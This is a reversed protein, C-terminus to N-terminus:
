KALRARWIIPTADYVGRGMITSGDDSIYPDHLAMGAPLAIIGRTNLEQLMSRMGGAADWYFAQIDAPAPPASTATQRNVGVMVAGTANISFPVIEQFAALPQIVQVSSDVLWRFLPNKTTVSDWGTGVVLTGDQNVALVSSAQLNAPNLMQKTGNAYFLIIGGSEAVGGAFLGNGSLAQLALTEAITPQGSQWVYGRLVNDQGRGYGIVVSGDSIDYVSGIEPPILDTASKQWRVFRFDTCNANGCEVGITATADRNIASGSTAPATQLETIAQTGWRWVYAFRSATSGTKSHNGFLVTGDGSPEQLSLTEVGGGATVSSWIWEFTARCASVGSCVVESRCIDNVDLVKPCSSHAPATDSAADLALTARAPLSPWVPPNITVSASPAASSAAPPTSASVTAVATPVLATSASPAGASVSPIVSASLGTSATTSASAKPAIGTVVASLAASPNGVGADNSFAFTASTLAGVSTPTYAPGADPGAGLLGADSMLPSSLSEVCKNSLCQLGSNCTGNGFCACREAGTVCSKFPGKGSCGVTAGAVAALAILPALLLGFGVRRTRM